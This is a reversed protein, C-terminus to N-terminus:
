QRRSPLGWIMPSKIMVVNFRAANSYYPNDDKFPVFGIVARGRLGSMQQAVYMGKQGDEEGWRLFIATHNQGGRGAGTQAYKGTTRNFTALVAGTQLDMGYTVSAGM